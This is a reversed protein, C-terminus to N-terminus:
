TGVRLPSIRKRLLATVSQATIRGTRPNDTPVNAIKMEFEAADAVVRIEHVNRDLGPDAWIEVGTRDPGVGALSLAVAVNLNSPFDRVAERATGYFLRIPGALDERLLGPDRFYPAGRLAALPKRTVMHVEHIVGEAAAQVTDLGILAGTPVVIEAGTAGATDVLHWADLLAGASLCVLTKGENVVPEAVDLFVEPPACEIVLDALDGVDAAPLVRVPGRRLTAAFARAREQSRASVATVQYGTLERDIREAVARGITGLGVIGVRVAPRESVSRRDDNQQPAYVDTRSTERCGHNVV